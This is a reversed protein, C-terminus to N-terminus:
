SLYHYKEENGKWRSAALLVGMASYCVLWIICKGLFTGPDATYLAKQFESMNIEILTVILWVAFLLLGTLSGRTMIYRAKGRNRIATWRRIFAEEKPGQGM